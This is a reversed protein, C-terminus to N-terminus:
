FPSGFRMADLHWIGTVSGRNPVGKLSRCYTMTKRSDLEPIDLLCHESRASIGFTDYILDHIATILSPFVKQATCLL